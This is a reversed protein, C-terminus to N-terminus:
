PSNTLLGQGISQALAPNNEELVLALALPTGQGGPLTGSLYWTLEQQSTKVVATTHWFSEGELMLSQLTANTAGELLTSRNSGEPYLKWGQEPTLVAGTIQLPPLLGNNSLVAAGRAMQLPTVLLHEQLTDAMDTPSGGTISAGTTELPLNPIEYLGLSTFLNTLDGAGVAQSLAALAAPCGGTILAAPTAPMGPAVACPEAQSTRSTNYNEAIAPVRNQASAFIYLFPSLAAGPPYLGQTARNFLPAGPDSILQNWDQELRGPDFYPHSAIALIEGTKANLLVLAGKHGGLLTDAQTQLKLDITLRVDLGPPPQGYLLHDLWIV